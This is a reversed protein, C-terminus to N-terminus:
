CLSVYCAVALLVIQTTKIPTDHGSFLSYKLYETIAQM